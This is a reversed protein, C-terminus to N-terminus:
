ERSAGVGAPPRCVVVPVPAARLVADAVSGLLLRRLGGRGHTALAILDSGLIQAQHLIAAAAHPAIVVRTRVEPARGRSRAALGGLYALAVGAGPEDREDGPLVLRQPSGSELVRLLTCRAGLARGLNFAADLVGEALPSGDLAVLIERVEPERALNPSAETPRMLLLPAQARRVLEDAVSGLFFRGVPGRGHTTMVILDAGRARARELIADAAFGSAVACSVRVGPLRAALAELYSEEQQRWAVDALPDYPGFSAAPDVQAYVVHGRVLDLRGGARRAISAALPLAQEAFPSGDLPVLISSLM